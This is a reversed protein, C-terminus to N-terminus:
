PGRTGEQTWLPSSSQDERSVYDTSQGDVHNGSHDRQRDIRYGRQFSQVTLIPAPTNSLHFDIEVLLRRDLRM